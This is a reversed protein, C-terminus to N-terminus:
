TERTQLEGIYRDLQELTKRAGEIAHFHQAAQDRQAKSNFVARLTLETGDGYETFTVTTQFADPDHENAGHSYTIRQPPVIERWVVCNPRALGDPGSMDFAWVGGERFEFSHTTTSFGHPGFWRALHHAETWARFVLPRQGAIRRTTVIQRDEEERDLVDNTRM